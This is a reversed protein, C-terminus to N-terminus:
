QPFCIVDFTWGETATHTVTIQNTTKNSIYVSAIGGAAGSNTPTLACHGSSTMGTANVDDTTAATTTLTTTIIQPVLLHNVYEPVIGNADSAVTTSNVLDAIANRDTTDVGKCEAGHVELSTNTSNDVKFCYATSSPSVRFLRGGYVKANGSVLEFLQTSTDAANSEIQLNYFNWAGNDRATGASQDIKVHPKTAGAHDISCNICSVAASAFSPPDIVAFPINGTTSLSDVTLNTLGAGCCMGEVLVGYPNPAAASSAEQTQVIIDSINSGDFLRSLHLLGHSFHAGYTGNYSVALSSIEVYTGASSPNADTCILSDMMTSGNYPQLTFGGSVGVAAGIVRSLNLVRIGCSAGDTINFKWAGVPPLLLTVRTNNTHDGVDIQATAVLNYLGRADCIGGGMLNVAAICANVQAGGNAGPFQDAYLVSNINKLSLKPVTTTGGFISNLKDAHSNLYVDWNQTVHPLRYVGINPTQPQTLGFTSALLVITFLVIFNRM